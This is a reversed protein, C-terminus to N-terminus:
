SMMKAISSGLNRAETHAMTGYQFREDGRLDSIFESMSKTAPKGDRSFNIAKTLTSDFLSVNKPNIDLYKGMLEIYDSAADRVTLDPNSNLRDALGAYLGIARQRFDEMVTTEDKEGKTIQLATSLASEDSMPIGMQDAYSKINRFTAGSTGGLQKGVQLQGQALSVVYENLFAGKDFLYDTSTSGSGRSAYQKEVKNLQRYFETKEAGTARRGFLKIMEQDLQSYASDRPTISFKSYSGSGATTAPPAMGEFLFSKGDATKGTTVNGLTTPNPNVWEQRNGTAM